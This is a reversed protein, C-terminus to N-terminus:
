GVLVIGVDMVNTGTPGPMFLGDITDFYNYSDNEALVKEPYLGAARASRATEGDAFAGAADTPGDIGDTGAFLAYVGQSGEVGSAFTLATEQNRGGRGGGTVTVTTEGGLLLCVPKDAKRLHYTLATKAAATGAVRAEGSLPEPVIVPTYGLYGAVEAANALATANSAVVTTRGKGFVPDGPKPTEALMGAAGAQLHERVRDPMRQFVGRMLLIDVAQRYTSEDPSCPGSAIVGPDDGPVDSIALTSLWAPHVAAALRGGKIDSLHKRVVNLEMIDAGSALLLATAAQKDSLTLGPAPLPMMASAGGSLLCLVLDDERARGAISMAMRAAEVGHSDPVPHAALYVNLKLLLEPPVEQGDPASVVGATLLEGLSDVAARAMGVSAKGAAIIYIDNIDPLPYSIGGVILEGAGITLNDRVSTYPDAGAVAARYIQSLAEKRDPEM